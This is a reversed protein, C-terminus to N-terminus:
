PPEPQVELRMTTEATIATPVRTWAELGTISREPRAPVVPFDRLRVTVAASGSVTTPSVTPTRQYATGLADHLYTEVATSADSLAAASDVAVSGV